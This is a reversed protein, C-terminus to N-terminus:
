KRSFLGKKKKEGDSLSVPRVTGCSVCTKSSSKNKYDCKPCRWDEKIYNDSSPLDQTNPENPKITMRTYEKPRPAGCNLCSAGHNTYDCEPCRWTTNTGSSATKTRPRQVTSSAIASLDSGTAYATELPEAYQASKIISLVNEITQTVLQATFSGSQVRGGVFDIRVMGAANNKLYVRIYLNNIYKQERQKATAGGILGWGAGFLSGIAARTIMSGTSTKYVSSENQVLEADVIDQFHFYVGNDGRRPFYRMMQHTNDVEFAGGHIDISYTPIFHVYSILKRPQPPQVPPQITPTPSQASVQATEEATPNNPNYLKAGCNWCFEGEAQKGCKSCFM